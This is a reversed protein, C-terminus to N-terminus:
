GLGRHGQGGNNKWRQKAEFAPCTHIVENAAMCCSYYCLSNFYKDTPTVGLCTVAGESTQSVSKVQSMFAILLVSSYHTFMNILYFHNVSFRVVHM